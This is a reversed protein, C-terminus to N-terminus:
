NFTAEFNERLQSFNKIGTIVSTVGITNVIEKIAFTSFSLKNEHAIKKLYKIRELSDQINEPKFDSLRSRRDNDPFRSYKNIKDTLMGSNLVNYAILKINKKICFDIMELQSNINLINLPIQIFDLTYSKTILKLEALSFNSCGIANLLGEKKMSNLEDLSESIPTNIDPWHIFFIPLCDLKLRSLSNIVDNRLAGKSCDKFIKSRKNKSPKGWSLGGKTAIVVDKIKKGLIKSLREESLGLGYVGATDFFNIGLDLSKHIAYNLEEESFYGWDTGGLAECGICLKSVKM